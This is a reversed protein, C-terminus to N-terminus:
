IWGACNVEELLQPDGFFAANRGRQMWGVTLDRELILISPWIQDEAMRIGLSEAIELDSDEIFPFDFGTDKQIARLKDAPGPALVLFTLGCESPDPLEKRIRRLQEQCVPCWTAKLTVVVVRQKKALAEVDITEGTVSKVKAPFPTEPLEREQALSPAAILLAAVASLVFRDAKM